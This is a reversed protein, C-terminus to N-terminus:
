QQQGQQPPEGPRLDVLDDMRRTGDLGGAPDLDDVMRAAAAHRRDVHAFAVRDLGPRDQDAEVALDGAALAALEHAPQLQARDLHRAQFGLGLGLSDNPRPSRGSRTAACRASRSARLAAWALRM